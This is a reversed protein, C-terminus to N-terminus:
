KNKLKEKVKEQNADLELSKRWNQKAKEVNRKKLYADGLHDYIVPDALLLSARELEEIAKDFIGKKFYVWGLSDIYAANDPEIKLAREILGQALDLNIGAEAYLYGLSNLANAYEPKNKVAEKLERIAEERKGQEEYTTGLFFHAEADDASKGLILKYTKEALDFKKQRFYIEGLSKYIQINQPDLESAKKLVIEYEQMALDFKKQTSYILALIAHPELSDPSFKIALRLEEVAKDFSDKKIYAAALRLHVIGESYDLRLAKQYEAIAKDLDDMGEYMVAMIYHSLARSAGKDLSFVEKNNIGTFALIFIVAGLFRALKSTM